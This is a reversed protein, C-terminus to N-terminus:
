IHVVLFTGMSALHRLHAAYYYETFDPGGRPCLHVSCEGRFHENVIGYVTLYLITRHLKLDVSSVRGPLTEFLYLLTPIVSMKIVSIQALFPSPKPHGNICYLQWREVYPTSIGITFLRICPHLMFVLTNQLTWSGAIHLIFLNSVTNIKYGSLNGYEELTKYLSSLSLLPNTLTLLHCAWCNFWTTSHPSSNLEHLAM